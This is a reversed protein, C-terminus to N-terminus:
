KASFVTALKFIIEPISNVILVQAMDKRDANAIKYIVIREFARLKGFGECFWLFSYM